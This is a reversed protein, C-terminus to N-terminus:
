IFKDTITKSCFSWGNNAILKAETIKFSFSDFFNKNNAVMAIIPLKKTVNPNCGIDCHSSSVIMADNNANRAANLQPLEVTNPFCAKFFSDNWITVDSLNIIVDTTHRNTIILVYSKCIIVSNVFNWHNYINIILM